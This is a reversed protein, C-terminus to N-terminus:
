QLRLGINDKGIVMTTVTVEAVLLAALPAAPIAVVVALSPPTAAEGEVLLRRAVAIVGARATIVAMRTATATVALAGTVTTTGIAIGTVPTMGDLTATPIVDVTVDATVDAVTVIATVVVIVWTSARHRTIHV